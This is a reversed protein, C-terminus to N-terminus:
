LSVTAGDDVVAPKERSIIIFCLTGVVIFGCGGIIGVPLPGIFPSAPGLTFWASLGAFGNLSAHALAPPWFSETRIALYSFFSGVFLCFIVMAIIGGWPATPYGVGYNHGMAIIPAHWLGWIIGSIIIALPAGYSEKLKPLLYGRWGIEEGATAFLNIVPSFLMGVVLQTIFIMKLTDGSIAVGQSQYVGAIQSMSPDFQGPFILFYVLAGLLILLSPGFWAMLYIRVHGKFHPRIGFDKFGERTILRTLVVSLAPMLMVVVLAPVALPNSLGGNAMLIFEITWTLFFNIGLFIGLRKM